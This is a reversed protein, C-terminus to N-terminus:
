NLFDHVVIYLVFGFVDHGRDVLKGLSVIQGVCLRITIEFHEPTYLHKVTEVVYHVRQTELVGCFVEGGETM